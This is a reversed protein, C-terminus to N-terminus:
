SERGKPEDEPRTLVRPGDELIAITDEFHAALKGNRTVVTWDDRMTRVAADEETIMPEIAFVHGVELRMGLHPFDESVYNPIQPDEHLARGIGHGVYNKVVQFGAGEVVMQVARSVERLVTGPRLKAIAAELSSRCVGVLRQAPESIPMVPYTRAADGFFGDIRCGIDVSVLDGERLKRNSPIGHVVEENVSICATAPFARGGRKPNPYGLFAPEAGETRIVAELEQDIAATTVGPRIMEGARRLCLGVIRCAERQREIEERTKCPVPDRHTGFAAAIM